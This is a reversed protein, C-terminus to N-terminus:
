KKSPRKTPKFWTEKADASKDTTVQEAFTLVESPKTDNMQGAVNSDASSENNHPMGATLDLQTEIGNSEVVATVTNAASL